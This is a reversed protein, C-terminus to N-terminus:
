PKAEMWQEVWVARKLAGFGMRKNFRMILELDQDILTNVEEKGDQEQERGTCVCVYVFEHVCMCAYVCVHMCACM